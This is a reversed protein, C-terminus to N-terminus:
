GRSPWLEQVRQGPVRLQAYLPLMKASGSWVDEPETEVKAVASEDLIALWDFQHTQWYEAPIDSWVLAFSDDPQQQRGQIVIKGERAVQRIRLATDMRHGGEFRELREATHEVIWACADSIPIWREQVPQSNVANSPRKSRLGDVIAWLILVAGVAAVGYSVMDNSSLALM